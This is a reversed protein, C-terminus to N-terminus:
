YTMVMTIAYREIPYYYNTTAYGEDVLVHLCKHGFRDEVNIYVEDDIYDEDKLPCLVLMYISGDKNDTM